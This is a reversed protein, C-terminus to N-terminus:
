GGEMTHLHEAHIFERLRALVHEPVDERLRERVIRKLKQEFVYAGDCPPCDRLHKRVRDADESSIEGDLYLYLHELADDCYDSM